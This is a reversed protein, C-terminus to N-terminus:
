QGDEGDDGDPTSWSAFLEAAAAPLPATELPIPPVDIDALKYERPQDEPLVGGLGRYIAKVPAQDPHMDVKIDIKSTRIWQLLSMNGRGKIKGAESLVGMMRLMLPNTHERKDVPRWTYDRIAVVQGMGDRCVAFGWIVTQGAVVDPSCHIVVALTSARTRNVVCQGCRKVRGSVLHSARVTHNGGCDCECYWTAAGSSDRGAPRITTLDGFKMNAIQLARSM